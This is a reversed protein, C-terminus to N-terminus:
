FGAEGGEASRLALAGGPWKDAGDAQLPSDPADPLTYGRSELEQDVRMALRLDTQVDLIMADFTELPLGSTAIVTLMSEEADRNLRLAEGSTSAQEIRVRWENEIRAADTLIGVFADVEAPSYEDAAAASPVLATVCVAAALAFAKLSM